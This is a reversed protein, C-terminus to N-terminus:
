SLLKPVILKNPPSVLLCVDKSSYPFLGPFPCRAIFLSIRFPYQQPCSPSFKIPSGQLIYLADEFKGKQSTLFSSHEDVIEQGYDTSIQKWITLECFRQSVEVQPDFAKRFGPWVRLYFSSSPGWCTPFWRCIVVLQPVQAMQCLM